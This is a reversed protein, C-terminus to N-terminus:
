GKDQSIPPVTSIALVRIFVSIPIIWVMSNKPNSGMCQHQMSNPVRILCIVWNKHLISGLVIFIVANHFRM